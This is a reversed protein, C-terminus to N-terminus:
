IVLLIFIFNIITKKYFELRFQNCVKEGLSIPIVNDDEAHLIMVPCQINKIHKDSEFRLHNDYFPEVIMWHFWPLHKFIKFFCVNYLHTKTYKVDYRTLIQFVNQM